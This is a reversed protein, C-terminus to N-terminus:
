RWVFCRLCYTMGDEGEIHRGNGAVGDMSTNGLLLREKVAEPIPYCNKAQMKLTIIIVVAACFLYGRPILIAEM